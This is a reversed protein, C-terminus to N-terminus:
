ELERNLLGIAHEVSIKKDELEVLNILNNDKLTKLTNIFELSQFLSIKDVPVLGGEENMTFSSRAIPRGYDYLNRRFNDLLHEIRPYHFNYISLISNKISDNTILDIGKAELLKYSTVRPSFTRGGLRTIVGYPDSLTSDIPTGNEILSLISEIRNIDQNSRKILRDFQSTLDSEFAFRIEKYFKTEDISAQRKDDWNNLAFAGLIGLMIVIIELLYEAWKLKLTKLIKKM